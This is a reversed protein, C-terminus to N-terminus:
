SYFLFEFRLNQSLDQPYCYCYGMEDPDFMNRNGWEVINEACVNSKAALQFCAQLGVQQHYSSSPLQHYSEPTLFIQEQCNENEKVLEYAFTESFFVISPNTNLFFSKSFAARQSCSNGFPHKKFQVKWFLVNLLKLNQIHSKHTM